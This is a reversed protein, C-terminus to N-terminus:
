LEVNLRENAISEAFSLQIFAGYKKEILASVVAMDRQLVERVFGTRKGTRSFAYSSRTPMRERKHKTATAFAASIAERGSLGRKKWFSILGEIYRSRGGKGRRGPTFPIKDASVGLEINIGYDEFMMTGVVGVPTESVQFDISDSLRGTLIHGQAALEERLKMQLFGMIERMIDPLDQARENM